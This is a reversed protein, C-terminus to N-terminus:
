SSVERRHHIGLSYSRGAITFFWYRNHPKDFDMPGDCGYYPWRWRPGPGFELMMEDLDDRPPNNPRRNRDVSLAAIPGAPFRIVKM